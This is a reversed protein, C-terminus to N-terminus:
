KSKIYKAPDAAYISRDQIDIGSIFTNVGIWTGDPIATGPLVVSNLGIACSKGIVVASSILFQRAPEAMPTFHYGSADSRDNLNRYHHSLTYIKAGSAVGSFDQISLGGHCQLVTFPAIHVGKGIHLEGESFTYAANLKHLMNPINVKGTLIIVYNDLWIDDDLFVLSPNSIIVGLDIVVNKGCRGLRNKYYGYRIRRGLGGDINRILSEIIHFLVRKIM